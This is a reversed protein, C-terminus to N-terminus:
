KGNLEGDKKDEYEPYIENLKVISKKLNKCDCKEILSILDNYFNQNAKIDRILSISIEKYIKNMREKEKQRARKLKETYEKKLEEIFKSEKAM